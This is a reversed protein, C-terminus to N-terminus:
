QNFILDLKEELDMPTIHKPIKKSLIELKWQDLLTAGGTQTILISAREFELERELDRIEGELESIEDPDIIEVGINDAIDEGYNIFLRKLDSYTNCRQIGNQFNSCAGFIEKSIEMLYEKQYWHIKDNREM